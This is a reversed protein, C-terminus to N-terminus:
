IKCEVAKKICNKRLYMLTQTLDRLQMSSFLNNLLQFFAKITERCSGLLDFASTLRESSSIDESTATERSKETRLM